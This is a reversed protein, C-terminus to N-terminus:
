LDTPLEYDWSTYVHERWEPWGAKVADLLWEGAVTISSEHSAYILWDMGGSTWYGERGDYVAALLSLEMEYEPEGDESGGERLEWFRDVGRGALIGRLSKDPVDKHFWEAQFAMVDPPLEESILPHWYDGQTGWREALASWLRKSEAVGLVRRYPLPEVRQLESESLGEVYTCFLDREEDMTRTAADENPPRTFMSEATRGALVLLDRLEEATHADGPELREVDWLIADLVNYRPFVAYDEPLYSYAGPPYRGEAERRGREESYRSKWRRGRESCYRRAATHLAVAHTM